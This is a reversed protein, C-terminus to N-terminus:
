RVGSASQSRLEKVRAATKEPNATAQGKCGSCCLFITEGALSLKIPPGMSGLRSDPLIPCTRQKEALARDTPSLAALAARIKADPDDPTTSRVTTSSAKSGGSGGFYISGAAPNLRTEADVLFSGSTVIQEGAALGSLVPFFVVGDPDVMKPGLSARVGEFVGPSAQRYVVKQDGTDIVAGQPVALVRGKALEAKQEDSMQPTALAAIQEPALFLRVTATSGPRLKHEPNDIEFRVSLTRTAQDVHPYIFKLTGHFEENPFARTTAVLAIKQDSMAHPHDQATPLLAIDDEYIQAQIWVTSLDAVEYLPMGEEVQDGEQVFKQIVHGSIPSRIKLHTNAQGSRLIEDIQQQDIGLLALRQRADRVLEQNGAKKGRLLDQVTVLLDPSYISALVDGAEVMQGTENVMLEDIRGKVRAQIKKQGRENFEVLGPALIERSLPVYDVRWTNVGALVIRYPSLQVRSVVGAPLPEAQAAEGKKRKSLPMFCIPCKEKPNDRIVSPHMPCFWEYESGGKEATAAPRTWKEYYAILLDWQTIVVGIVILIAVFRLRALNVLVLFDFWWWVRQWFSLGPPAHLGGEDHTSLQGEQNTSM